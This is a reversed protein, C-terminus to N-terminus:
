VSAADTKYGGRAGICGMAAPMVMVVVEAERAEWPPVGGGAFTGCSSVKRSESGAKKPQRDGGGEEQSGGEGEGKAMLGHLERRLDDGQDLLKALPVEHPVELGQRGGRIISRAVDVAQLILHKRFLVDIRQPLRDLCKCPGQFM